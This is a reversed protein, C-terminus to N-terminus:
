PRASGAQVARRCAPDERLMARMQADYADSLNPIAQIGLALGQPADFLAITKSRCLASLTEPELESLQMVKPGTELFPDNRIFDSGFMLGNPDVIVIDAKSRAIAAAARAYPRQFAEAQVARWPLLVLLSFAAALGMTLPGGRWISPTGDPATLRVWAAAAMLAFSGLLGHLYRYGWGHGQHPLLLWMVTPTLVIGLMLPRLAQPSRWAAVVGWLALPVLLPNQWAIFRLLNDAMILSGYPDFDAVMARVRTWLFAAGMGGKVVPAAGVVPLIL